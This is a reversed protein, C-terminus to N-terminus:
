EFPGPIVFPKGVNSVNMSSRGPTREKMMDTFTLTYPGDGSHMVRHSQVTQFSIFTKEWKKCDYVKEGTHPKERTQFSHLCSFTEVCQKCKHPKEGHEQCEYPKHGTDTSICCNLSSHDMNGEACVHSECPKVEPFTKKNMIADPIISFTEDCQGDKCECLREAMHNRPNRRSDKCHYETNQGQWIIGVSMLNNITEQIVDRYLHKQSSDLLAWEEQTFNVAVDEFTVSD